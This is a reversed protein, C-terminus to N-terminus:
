AAGPEAPPRSLKRQWHEVISVVSLIIILWENLGATGRIVSRIWSWLFAMMLLSQPDILALAKQGPTRSAFSPTPSPAPALIPAPLAPAYAFGNEAAVAALGASDWLAPDYSIVLSQSTPRYEVHAIGERTALADRLAWCPGSGNSSPGAKLRLRGPTAHVPHLPIQGTLPSLDIV